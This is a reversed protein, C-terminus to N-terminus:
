IKLWFFVITNAYASNIHFFFFFKDQLHSITFALSLPFCRAYWFQHSPFKPWKRSVYLYITLSDLLTGGELFFFFNISLSSLFVPTSLRVHLTNPDLSDTNRITLVERWKCQEQSFIYWSKKRSKNKM